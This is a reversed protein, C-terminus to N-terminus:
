KIKIQYGIARRIMERVYTDEKKTNNKQWCMALPVPVVLPSSSDEVLKKTPDDFNNLYGEDIIVIWYDKKGMTGLLLKKAQEPSEAVCIDIGSFRFGRSVEKEVIALIKFL